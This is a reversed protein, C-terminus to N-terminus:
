VKESNLQSKSILPGIANDYAILFLSNSIATILAM